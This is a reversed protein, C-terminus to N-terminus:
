KELINSISFPYDHIMTFHPKKQGHLILSKELIHESCHVKKARQWENCSNTSIIVYGVENRFILHLYDNLYPYVNISGEVKATNYSDLFFVSWISM